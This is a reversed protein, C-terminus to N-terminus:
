GKKTTIKDDPAPFGEVTGLYDLVAAGIALVVQV